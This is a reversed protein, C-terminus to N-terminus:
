GCSVSSCLVKHEEPFWPVYGFKREDPVSSCLGKINRLSGLFMVTIVNTPFGLFMVTIVNTPSGLFM